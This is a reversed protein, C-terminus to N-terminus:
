ALKIIGAGAQLVFLLVCRTALAQAWPPLIESSAVTCFFPHHLLSLSSLTTVFLMPHQANTYTILQWGKNHEDKIASLYFVYMFSSRPAYSKSIAM